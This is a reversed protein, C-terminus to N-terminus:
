QLSKFTFFFEGCGPVLLFIFAEVDEAVNPPCTQLSGAFTFAAVPSIFRTLLCEKGSSTSERARETSPSDPRLRVKAAGGLSPSEWDAWCCKTNVASKQTSSADVGM